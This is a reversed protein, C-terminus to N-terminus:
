EVGLQTDASPALLRAGSGLLLLSPVGTWLLPFFASAVDQAAVLVIPPLAALGFGVCVAGRWRPHGSTALWLVGFSIGVGVIVAVWGMDTGIHFLPLDASACPDNTRPSDSLSEGVACGRPALVVAAGDTVITAVAPLGFLVAPRFPSSTL